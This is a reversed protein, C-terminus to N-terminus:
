QTEDKSSMVSEQQGLLLSTVSCPQTAVSHTEFSVQPLSDPTVLGQGSKDNTCPSVKFFYDM